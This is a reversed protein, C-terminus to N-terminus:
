IGSRHEVPATEESARRYRHLAVLAFTGVLWPLLTWWAINLPSVEGYIIAVGTVAWILSHDPGYPVGFGGSLAVASRLLAGGVYCAALQGVISTRVSWTSPLLWAAVLGAVAFILVGRLVAGLLSEGEVGVSSVLFAAAWIGTALM